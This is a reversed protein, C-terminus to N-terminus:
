EDWVVNRKKKNGRGGRATTAGKRRRRKRRGRKGGCSKPNEGRRPNKRKKPDRTSVRALPNPEEERSSFPSSVWRGCFSSFSPYEMVKKGGGGKERISKKQRTLPGAEEEQLTQSEGYFFRIWITICFLPNAIQHIEKEAPLYQRGLAM